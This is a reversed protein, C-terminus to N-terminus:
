APRLDAWYKTINGSRGDKGGSETYGLQSAATQLVQERTAM